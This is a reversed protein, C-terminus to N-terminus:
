EIFSLWLMITNYYCVDPAGCVTVLSVYVCVYIQLTPWYLTISYVLFTCTSDFFQSRLHHLFKFSNAFIHCAHLVLGFSAIRGRHRTENTTVQKWMSGDINGIVRQQIMENLSVCPCPKGLVLRCTMCITINIHFTTKNYSHFAFSFSISCASMVIVTWKLKRTQFCDVMNAEARTVGSTLNSNIAPTNAKIMRKMSRPTGVVPVASFHQLNM